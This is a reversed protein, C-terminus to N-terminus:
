ISLPQPNLWRNLLYLLPFAFLMTATNFIAVPVLLYSFVDNWIIPRGLLNLLLLAVSNFLLSLPFTLSLPLIISSGFLRGHFLSTALTVILTTLTFLGFPAGSLFDLSLGGILAWIL